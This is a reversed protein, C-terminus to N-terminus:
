DKDYFMELVTREDETLGYPILNGGSITVPKDQPITSYVVEPGRMKARVEKDLEKEFEIEKIDDKFGDRIAESTINSNSLKVEVPTKIKSIYKLIFYVGGLLVILELLIGFIIILVM